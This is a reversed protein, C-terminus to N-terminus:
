KINTVAGKSASQAMVAYRGLAGYDIRPPKPTWGEKRNKIEEDTLKVELKGAPIDLSIIDGDKIFIEDDKVEILNDPNLNHNYIIKQIKTKDMITYKKKM